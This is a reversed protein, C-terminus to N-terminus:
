AHLISYLEFQGRILQCAVEVLEWGQSGTSRAYQAAQAITAFHQPAM